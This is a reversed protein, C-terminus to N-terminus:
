VHGRHKELLTRLAHRLPRYLPTAVDAAPGSMAEDLAHYMGLLISDDASPDFAGDCFYIQASAAGRLQRGAIQNLPPINTWDMARREPSDPETLAYRLPDELLDTWRRHAIRRFTTAREALGAEPLGASPFGSRIEEVGWRNMTEIHYSLDEPHLHPRVLYLAAGLAAVHESNLINHGREIALMPTILIWADEHRALSSVRGRTLSGPDWHHTGRDDDPVLHLVQGAWEPRLHVLQEHVLRAERYNGVLLLLRRRGPDLRDRIEELASPRPGRLASKATCLAALLETLADARAQGRKGSVKVDRRVGDPGTVSSPLYELVIHEDLPIRDAAKSSLVGSVPVQVDYRPSNGAWSTASLLLVGPGQSGFLHPLDLLLSRGIGSCRFFSLTGLQDPHGGEEERYQFGLLNGMPSEPVLPLYEAAPRHVLSTSMSDAGMESEVEWVYRTLKDLEQALLAVTMTVHFRVALRKRSEKGMSRTETLTGLWDVLNSTIEDTDDFGRSAIALLVRLDESGASFRAAPKTLWDRLVVMWRRYASERRTDAECPGDSSVPDLPLGALEAALKGGLRWENFYSESLWERVYRHAGMLAHLRATLVAAREIGVSWERVTASTTLHKGRSSRNHQDFLGKVEYLWAEQGPGTLTQTPSFAQDLQIQVRDAEDFAIVDSREWALELYRQGTDIVQVPVKCHLLGPATSVWIPADVLARPAEQRGCRFFLPCACSEPGRRSGTSQGPDQDSTGVLRLKGKCPADALAFPATLPLLGQMTCATSVWRLRDDNLLDLGVALPDAPRHLQRLHQGRTSAGLIPAAAGPVYFNLDGVMDLVSVVDGLVVTMTHRSRHRAAWVALITLLTTKGVAPMGVLHVLDVVPLRRARRLGGSERVHLQVDTIRRHWNRTRDQGSDVTDMWRATRELAGWTITVRRRRRPRHGGGATPVLWSPLVVQHEQGNVGFRYATDPEALPTSHSRHEPAAALAAAYHHERDTAESLARRVAPLDVDKVEFMRLHEPFQQYAELAATWDREAKLAGILWRISSNVAPRGDEQPRFDYGPLLAWVEKAAGSPQWRAMAYLGLEVDIAQRVRANSMGAGNAPRVLDAYVKARWATRNRGM